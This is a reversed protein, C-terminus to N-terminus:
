SLFKARLEPTPLKCENLKGMLSYRNKAIIDYVLNRIVIPIVSFITIWSIGWNLYRSIELVADSKFFYKGERILVISESAKTDLKSLIKKATESQSPAFQFRNNLDHDIIFNIYGDCFNCTGDFIILDKM